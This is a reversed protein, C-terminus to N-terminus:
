PYIFYIYLVNISVKLGSASVATSPLIIQSVWAEDSMLIPWKFFTSSLTLLGSRLVRTLLDHHHHHRCLLCHRHHKWHWLHCFAWRDLSLYAYTPLVLNVISVPVAVSCCLLPRSKDSDVYSTSTWNTALFRITLGAFWQLSLFFYLSITQPFTHVVNAYKTLSCCIGGRWYSIWFFWPYELNLICQLWSLTAAIVHCKWAFFPEPDVM